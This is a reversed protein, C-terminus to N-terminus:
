VWATPNRCPKRELAASVERVMQVDVVGKPVAANKKRRM